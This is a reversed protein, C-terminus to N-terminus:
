VDSMNFQTSIVIYAVVNGLLGMIVSKNIKFYGGASFERFFQKSYTLANGIIKMEESNVGFHDELQRCVDHFKRAEQVTSDM